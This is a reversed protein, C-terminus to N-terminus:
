NDIPDDEARHGKTGKDLLKRMELFEGYEQQFKEVAECMITIEEAMGNIDPFQSGSFPIGLYRMLLLPVVLELFEVPYGGNKNLKLAQILNSSIVGESVQKQLLVFVSDNMNLKINSNRYNM